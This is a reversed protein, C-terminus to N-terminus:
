ADQKYSLALMIEVQILQFVQETCIKILGVPVDEDLLLLYPSLSMIFKDRRRAKGQLIEMLIVAVECKDELGGMICDKLDLIIADLKTWFRMTM